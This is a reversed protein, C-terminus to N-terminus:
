RAHNGGVWRIAPKVQRALEIYERYLKPFHSAAVKEDFAACMDRTYITVALFGVVLPEHIQVEVPLQLGREVVARMGETAGVVHRAHDADLRTQGELHFDETVEGDPGVVLGEVEYKLGSTRLMLVVRANEDKPAAVPLPAEEAPQPELVAVAVVAVVAKPAPKPPPPALEDLGLGLGSQSEETNPVPKKRAM